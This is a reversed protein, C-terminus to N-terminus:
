SAMTVPPPSPMPRPKPSPTSAPTPTVSPNNTTNVKTKNDSNVNNGTTYNLLVNDKDNNKSGLFGFAIINGFVLIFIILAVGVSTKIKM